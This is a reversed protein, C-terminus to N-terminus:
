RLWQIFDEDLVFSPTGASSANNIEYPIKVKTLDIGSFASIPIFISQWQGPMASNFGVISTLAVTAVGGNGDELSVTLLEGPTFTHDIRISFRLQGGSFASLDQTEGRFFRDFTWGDNRGPTSNAQVYKV